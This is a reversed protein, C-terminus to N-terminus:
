GKGAAKGDAVVASDSVRPAPASIFSFLTNAQSIRRSAADVQREGARPVPSWQGPSVELRLDGNAAVRRGHQIVTVGTQHGEPYIDSFVIVDLGPGSLYSRDNVELHPVAAAAASIAAALCVTLVRGRM